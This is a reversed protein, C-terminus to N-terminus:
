DQLALETAHEAGDLLAYDAFVEDAILALGRSACTFLLREHESRTVYSGTPNNPSVVLLAKTGPTIAREISEFDIDWRRHYELRYSDAAIGELRTLHEFLPYSPAPVLVREGPACLLKFLWSYAESTS